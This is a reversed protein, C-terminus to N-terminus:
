GGMARLLEEAQRARKKAEPGLGSWGALLVLLVPVIRWPSTLFYYRWSAPDLHLANARTTGYGGWWFMLLPPVVLVIVWRIALLARRSGELERVMFQACSEGEQIRRPGKRIVGLFAFAMLLAM